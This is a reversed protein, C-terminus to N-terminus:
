FTMHPASWRTSIENPVNCSEAMALLHRKGLQASTQRSSSRELNSVTCASAMAVLLVRVHIIRCLWLTWATHLGCGMKQWIELKEACSCSKETISHTYYQLHGRHLSGLPNCWCKSMYVNEIWGLIPLPSADNNLIQMRGLLNRCQHVCM